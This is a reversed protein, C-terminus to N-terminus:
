SKFWYWIQQGFLVVFMIIMMITGGKGNLLSTYNLLIMSLILLIMVTFYTGIAAFYNM